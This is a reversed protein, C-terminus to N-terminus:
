KPFNPEAVYIKKVAAAVMANSLLTGSLARELNDCKGVM